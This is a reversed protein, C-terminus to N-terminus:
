VESEKDFEIDVANCWEEVGDDWRILYTTDVATVKGHLQSPDLSPDIHVWRVRDGMKLGDAM